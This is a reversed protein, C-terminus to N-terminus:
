LGIKPDVLEFSDIALERSLLPLIKVKLQLKSLRVMTKDSYGPPNGFSVDNLEVALNPLFSLSTSGNIEFDRGTASKVQAVIQDKVWSVPIVFPLILLVVVIVAILAAIRILWKKM